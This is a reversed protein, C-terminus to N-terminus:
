YCKSLMEDTTNIYMNTLIPVISIEKSHRRVKQM